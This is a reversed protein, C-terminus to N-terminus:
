TLEIRTIVGVEILEHIATQVESDSLKTLLKIQFNKLVVDTQEWGIQSAM